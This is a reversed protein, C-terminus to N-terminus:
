PRRRMKVITIKTGPYLAQVLKRKIKFERTEVGKVDEVVRLAGEFYRFDAVYKCVLVTNIVINYVPQLELKRIHGAQELMKLQCYRRSEAKSAFVIGNVTREAAPSVNYKHRRPKQGGCLSCGLGDCFRCSAELGFPRIAQTV